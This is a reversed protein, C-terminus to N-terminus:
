RATGGDGCAASRREGCRRGSVLSLLLGHAVVIRPGPLTLAARLGHMLGGIGGHQSECAGPPVAAPGNGALWRAYEVFSEGEFVGYDLEGLRTEPVVRVRNELLLEATRVCRPFPSAVCNAMEDIPVLSRTAVCAKEGTMTLPVPVSPDGNLRFATSYISEAHRLLYTTSM